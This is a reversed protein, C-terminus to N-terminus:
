RRTSTSVSRAGRCEADPGGHRHDRRRACAHHQVSHERVVERGDATMSGQAVSGCVVAKGADDKTTLTLLDAKVEWYRKRSLALPGTGAQGPVVYTLTHNELDVATRGESSIRGDRIDIGAARLLDSTAQDARIEIQLNGFEDYNLSGQGKVVIPAKGPPFVEFSELAWRGELFKRAATLSGAGADVPGMEVNRQRPAGSCGTAAWVLVGVAIARTMSFRM